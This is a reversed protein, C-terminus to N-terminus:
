PRLCIRERRTYTGEAIIVNIATANKQANMFSPPTLRKMVSRAPEEKTPSQSCIYSIIDATKETFASSENMAATNQRSMLMPSVRLKMLLADLPLASARRATTETAINNVKRAHM